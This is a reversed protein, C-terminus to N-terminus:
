PRTSKSTELFTIGSLIQLKSSEIRLGKGQIGTRLDAARMGSMSNNWLEGNAHKM